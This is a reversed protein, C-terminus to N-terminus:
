ASSINLKLNLRLHNCDERCRITGYREDDKEAIDKAEREENEEHQVEVGAM